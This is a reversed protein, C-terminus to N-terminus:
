PATRERDGASATLTDFAEQRASGEGNGVVVSHIQELMNHQAALEKQVSFLRRKLASVDEEQGLWLLTLQSSAFGFLGIAAFIVLGAIIRGDATVPRVEGYGLTTATLFSLYLADGFNKIAPNVGHEVLWFGYASAAWFILLTPALLWGVRSGRIEAGSERGVLFARIVAAIRLFRLLRAFRLVRLVGILPICTVLDLWHGRLYHLRSPADLFRVSFELLFLLAVVLVVVTQGNFGPALEDEMFAIVVYVATLAGMAIEWPLEHRAVFHTIAGRELMLAAQRWRGGSLLASRAEDAHASRVRRNPAAPM